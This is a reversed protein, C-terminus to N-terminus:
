TLARIDAQAAGIMARLSYGVIVLGRGSGRALKFRSGPRALAKDYAPGDGRRRADRERRGGNQEGRRATDDPTALSSAKRKAPKPASTYERWALRAGIFAGQDAGVGNLHRRV